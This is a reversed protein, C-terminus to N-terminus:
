PYENSSQRKTEVKTEDLRAQKACFPFPVSLPRTEDKEAESPVAPGSGRGGSGRGRLARGLLPGKQSRKTLSHRSPEEKGLM